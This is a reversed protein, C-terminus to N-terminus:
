GPYALMQSWEAELHHKGHSFENLNEEFHEIEFAEDDIGLRCAGVVLAVFDQLEFAM